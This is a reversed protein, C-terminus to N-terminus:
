ASASDSRASGIAVLISSIEAVTTKVFRAGSTKANANMTVYYVIGSCGKELLNLKACATTLALLRVLAALM